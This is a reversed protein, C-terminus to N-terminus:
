SRSRKFENKLNSELLQKNASNMIGEIIPILKGTNNYSFCGWFVITQSHKITQDIHGAATITELTIKDLKQIASNEHHIEMRAFNESM